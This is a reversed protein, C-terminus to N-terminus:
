NNLSMIEAQDMYVIKNESIEIKDHYNKYANLISALKLKSLKDNQRRFASLGSFNEIRLTNDMQIYSDKDIVTEDPDTCFIVKSSKFLAKHEKGELSDIQAIEIFNFKENIDIVLYPHKSKSIDGSNNFRIRLSLIQGVEIEHM